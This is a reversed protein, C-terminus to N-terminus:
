YLMRPDLAEPRAGKTACVDEFGQSVDIRRPPDEELRGTAYVRAVRLVYGRDLRVARNFRAVQTPASEPTFRIQTNIIDGNMAEAEIIVIVRALDSYGRAAALETCGIELNTYGAPMTADLEVVRVSESYMSADLVIPVSDALIPVLEPTVEFRDTPRTPCVRGSAVLNVSIIISGDQWSETVAVTEGPTLGLAFHRETWAGSAESGSNGEPTAQRPSNIGAFVVEAEMFEPNFPRVRSGAPLSGGARAIRSAPDPFSLSFQLIAGSRYEGLDGMERTGIYNYITLHIDPRGDDTTVQATSPFLWWLDRDEHDPYCWGAPTQRGETLVPWAGAPVAVLLAAALIWFLRM